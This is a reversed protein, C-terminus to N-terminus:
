KETKKIRNYLTQRTIGLQEAAATFNGNHKDLAQSIMFSEMEQLTNFRNGAVPNMSNKLYLDDPTIIETESLIVAKEVTHQLERVNGPWTCNLLRETADQNFRLGPKGYKDAFKRLFFEAMLIVDRGRERLPPLEIHITNIRYLLDERFLGSQVMEEINKNTACILRIDVPIVQNSGIRSISRNELASLLKAQLHIRAFYGRVGDDNVM